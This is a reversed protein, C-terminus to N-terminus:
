PEGTEARVWFRVRKGGERRQPLSRWGARRLCWAIRAEHRPERRETPVELAGLLETVTTKTKGVLEHEIPEQWPDVRQRDEREHEIEAPFEWWTKGADYDVLAEAFWQLRNAEILDPRIPGAIGTPIPILRRAGTPDDWYRSENTTGVFVCRRPYTTVRKEWKEVIPDVRRTIFAKSTEADRGVLPKLETLEALWACRIERVCNASGLPETVEVHFDGGLVALAMSKLTGQEGEFVFLHDVKAGPKRARAIMARFLNASGARMLPTDPTGFAEHLAYEIRPTGDWTPLTAIFEQLADTRHTNAVAEVATRVMALTARPIHKQQIRLLEHRDDNDTWARRTGDANTWMISRWFEDFCVGRAILQAINFECAIPKGKPDLQLAPQEREAPPPNPASPEVYGALRWFEAQTVNACSDHLCKIVAKDVGNFHPLLVVTSTPGTESSHAAANPCRIALKGVPAKAKLLFGADRLHRICPDSSAVDDARDSATESPEIEPANALLQEVNLPAGSMRRDRPFIEAGTLPGFCPQEAQYVSEDFKVAGNSIGATALLDRQFALGCRKGEDRTVARSLELVVRIRPKEATHRATTYAFHRWPQLALLLDYLTEGDEIYDLDLPLWSRAQAGDKCRHHRGDGNPAFPAAFYAEGKRKSRHDCVFKAFEAFSEVAHQAPHADHSNRGFSFPFVM